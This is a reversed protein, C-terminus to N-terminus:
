ITKISFLVFPNHFALIGCVYITMPICMVFSVASVCLKGRATLHPAVSQDKSSSVGKVNFEDFMSRAKATILAQSAHFFDKYLSYTLAFSLLSYRIEKYMWWTLLKQNSLAQNVRGPEETVLTTSPNFKLILKKHKKRKLTILKSGNIDILQSM